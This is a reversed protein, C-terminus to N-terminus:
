KTYVPTYPAIKNLLEWAKEAQDVWFVADTQRDATARNLVFRMIFERKDM